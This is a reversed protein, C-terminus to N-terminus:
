PRTRPPTTRASLDKNLLAETLASVGRQVQAVSERVARVEADLRAVTERLPNLTNYLSGLEAIGPVHTIREDMRTLRNGHGDMVSDIDARLKNLESSRVRDRTSLWQYLGVIALLGFQALDVAIRTWHPDLM